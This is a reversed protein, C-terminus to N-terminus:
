SDDASEASPESTDASEGSETGDDNGNTAPTVSNIKHKGKNKRRRRGM